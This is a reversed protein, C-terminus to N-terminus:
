KLPWYVETKWDKPDPHQAPDTVYSEWPADAVQHGNAEIWREIAANTEPLLEYPGSHVAFAVSGGYLAGAQMEGNSPAPSALPMAADVTWLGPGTAVYRALPWGAIALGAQHGYMFLKGFCEAFMDKLQTRSVRRRIYLIPQATLERREIASTTVVTRGKSENQSEVGFLRTCPGIAAILSAHRLRDALPLKKVLDARYRAPSRGFMRRFARTFVEHSEFGHALAISLISDHTAILRAAARELRLRLTYRKPTEGMSRAFERHFQFRSRKSRSALAALSVDADLRLNLDRISRLFQLRATM